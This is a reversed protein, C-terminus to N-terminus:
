PVHGNVLERFLHAAAPTCFGPTRSAVVNSGRAGALDQQGNPVAGQHNGVDHGGTAHIPSASCRPLRIAMSPSSRRAEICAGTSPFLVIIPSPGRFPQAQAIACSTFHSPAGGLKRGLLSHPHIVAM